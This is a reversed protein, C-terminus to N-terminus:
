AVGDEGLGGEVDVQAQEERYRGFAEEVWKRYTMAIWDGIRRLSAVLQYLGLLTRTDGISLEEAIEIHNKHLSAFSVHWEHGVVHILPITPVNGGPVLESVRKFWSATWVSLQLKGQNASTATKTEINCAIPAFRLPAYTSQNVFQAEVPQKWVTKAIEDMLHVDAEPVAADHSTTRPSGRNLWLLLTFDIMKSEVVAAKGNATPVFPSAIKASLAPEVRITPHASFAHRLIPMHIWMNWSAESCDSLECQEADSEIQRLLDLEQTLVSIRTSEQPNQLKKFWGPKVRRIVKKVHDIVEGPIFEEKDNIDQLKEYLYHVDPPLVDVGDDGLKVFDVPVDLAQLSNNNKVPSKARGKRGPSTGPSSQSAFSSESPPISPVKGLRLPMPNDNFLPPASASAQNSRPTADLDEQDQDNSASRKRKPSPRRGSMSDNSPPPTFRSWSRHSRKRKTCHPKQLPYIDPNNTNINFSDPIADLWQEVFQELSM